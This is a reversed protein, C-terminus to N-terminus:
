ALVEQRKTFASEFIYLGVKSNVCNRYIQDHRQKINYKRLDVGIKKRFEPLSDEHRKEKKVRVFNLPYNTWFLHRDLRKAPILPEYYPMVNEVCFKGQFYGNLFIIEQYLAMDPYIPTNQLDQFNNTKKGIKRVCSHSPCPPSAWIFDFESYHNILYQHADEVIVKDNPFLDEYVKAIESSNEIATVEVDKWLKRNGGIGAYLNLVKM